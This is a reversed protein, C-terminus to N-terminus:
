YFMNKFLHIVQKWVPETEKTFKKKFPWVWPICCNRPWPNFRFWLLSRHRLQPLVVDKLGSSWTLSQVQTEVTVPAVAPLNKVWQAM